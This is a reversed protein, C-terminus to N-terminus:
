PEVRRHVRGGSRLWRVAGTEDRIVEGRVDKL